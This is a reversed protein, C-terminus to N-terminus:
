HYQEQCVKPNKTRCKEFIKHMAMLAEKKQHDPLVLTINSASAGVSVMCVGLNQVLQLAEAVYGPHLVDGVVCLICMGKQVHVRGLKQLEGVLPELLSDDEITISVSVESTTVVDVSIKFTEFVGFVKALFGYANAMRGSTIRLVTIQDKASIARIGESPPMHHILTGKAEPELTNKLWVPISKERAPRVCAPHLIKAGFFALEAAETYSLSRIPISDSVYRPDNNHLGDIDTWIEICEAGLAAGLLTASYDSGGRKLNSIHGQADRCIYGQTVYLDVKQLRQQLRIGIDETCPMGDQSLHIIDLANILQVGFGKKRLYGSFLMSTVQEGTALVQNQGEVSHPNNLLAFVRAFTGELDTAMHCHYFGYGLLEVSHGVFEEQIRQLSERAESTNGQEWAECLVTLTNTMGQMASCVVLCPRSNQAIAAANAIRTANGLSSGGFKIIKM